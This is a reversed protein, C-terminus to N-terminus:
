KSVLFSNAKDLVNKTNDYTLKEMAKGFELWESDQHEHSLRITSDRAEALFFIVDKSIAQGERMFSYHITEQFGEIFNLDDLGTEEIAERVITQRHTEGDEIKGKIFDWHGAAYHLLLYLRKGDETRYVIAGASHETDM